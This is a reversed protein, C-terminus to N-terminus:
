QENLVKSIIQGTNQLNELWSGSLPDLTIVQAGIERSLVDIQEFAYERQVFIIRINNKKAYDILESMRQASFSKNEDRISIQRIGYDRAFYGWAPHLTLFEAGKHPALIEQLEKDLAEIDRILTNYNHIYVDRHDPYLELLAHYVREAAGRMIKPSLWIHSDGPVNYEKVAMSVTHIEPHQELFPDIHKREFYFDPHGIKIYLRSNHLDRIQAATLAHTSHGAGPPIMVTVPTQDGAIRKVLYTQPVISVCIEATPTSDCSFLLITLILLFLRYTKQTLKKM